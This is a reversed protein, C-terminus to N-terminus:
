HHTISENGRIDAQLSRVVSRGSGVATADQDVTQPRAADGLCGGGDVQPRLINRGASGQPLPESVIRNAPRFKSETVRLFDTPMAIPEVLQAFKGASATDGKDICGMILTM